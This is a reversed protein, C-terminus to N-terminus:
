VRGYQLLDISDRAVNEALHPHRQPLRRYEDETYILPLCVRDTVRDVRYATEMAADWQSDEDVDTPWVLLIDVDSTDEPEGRALSGFILAKTVGRAHNRVVEAIKSFLADYDVAVPVSRGMNGDYLVLFQAGLCM